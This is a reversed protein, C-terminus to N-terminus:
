QLIEEKNLSKEAARKREDEQGKFYSLRTGAKMEYGHKESYFWWHKDSWYKTVTCHSDLYNSYFNFGVNKNKAM